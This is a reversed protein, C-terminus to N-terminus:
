EKEYLQKNIEEETLHIKIEEFGRFYLFKNFINKFWKILYNM